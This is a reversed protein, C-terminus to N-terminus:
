SFFTFAYIPWSRWEKAIPSEERSAAPHNTPNAAGRRLPKHSNIRCLDLCFSSPISGLLARPSSRWEPCFLVQHKKAVSWFDWLQPLSDILVLFPHPLPKFPDWFWTWFCFTSNQALFFFPLLHTFNWPFLKMQLCSKMALDLFRTCLSSVGPSSLYHFAIIGRASSSLETGLLWTPCSVFEQWELLNSVRRNAAPVWTHMM